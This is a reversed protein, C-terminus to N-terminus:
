ERAERLIAKYVNNSLWFGNEKLKEILPKVATILGKEKAAVLIRLTGVVKIGRLKAVRRGLKDDMIIAGAKLEETLIIVEAEGDDIETLLYEKALKNKIKKTKLWKETKIEKVGFSNRGGSLVEQKVADPIYIENFLKKILSLQNISSLYVIPSTNVIAINKTL